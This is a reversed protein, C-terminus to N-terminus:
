LVEGGDVSFKQSIKWMLSSEYSLIETDSDVPWIGSLKVTTHVNNAADLLQCDADRKFAASYNFLEDVGQVRRKWNQLHRLVQGKNNEIMTLTLNGIDVFGPYYDNTGGQHIGNTPNASIPLSCDIILEPPIFASEEQIVVRWKYSRQPQHRSSLRILEVAM